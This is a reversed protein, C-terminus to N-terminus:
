EILKAGKDTIEHRDSIQHSLGAKDLERLGSRVRFLPVGTNQAIEEPLGLGSKLASLMKKGTETPSGDPSICAM